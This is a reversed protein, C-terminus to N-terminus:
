IHCIYRTKLMSRFDLGSEATVLLKSPSSDKGNKNEVNLTYQGDDQSRCKGIVLTIEGEKGDTMIKIRPGNIIERKGKYWKFTPAPDGEIKCKFVATDNESVTVNEPIEIIRAPCGKPGMPKLPTSEKETVEAFSVSGRRM